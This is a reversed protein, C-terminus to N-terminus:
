TVDEVIKEADRVRIERTMLTPLLTDRLEALTLSEQEAALARDWLPGLEDDLQALYSDAPAIVPEDLDHRQIHGMTTAKGAAISQFMALKRQVLDNALWMPVATKPIVKFIHQNIIAEPRFWRAVSLSGSWAFLVDGPRAVNQDPVEIDNYVTSAGPGSNIEAIRIVMRGTRSADKTYARGNVFEAVSSLPLEGTMAPHARLWYDLRVSRLDDCTRAVRDNVAIKDDITGLVLAISDQQSRPPIPVPLDKLAGLNIKQTVSGQLRSGLWSIALSSKLFCNVFVHNVSDALPVVAVDRSVNFGAMSAPVVANHGPEAILNLVIEGGRLITRRFQNSVISSVRKQENFVIRNDRIDGGRIVPVGGEVYDGVKVIGYTIGREPDCLDGLKATQWDPM